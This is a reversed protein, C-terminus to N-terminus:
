LRFTVPEFGTGADGSQSCVFLDPGSAVRRPGKRHQPEPLGEAGAARLMATLHGVLEIRPEGGPGSPPGVEVREILARAADLVAQNNEGTIAAQLRSM